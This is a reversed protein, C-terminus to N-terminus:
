GFWLDLIEDRRERAQLAELETRLSALAGNGSAMAAVADSKEIRGARVLWRVWPDLTELGADLRGLDGELKELLPFVLEFRRAVLCHRLVREIRRPPFVEDQYLEFVNKRGKTRNCTMCAPVLNAPVDPGGLQVPVVHDLHFDPVPVRCYACRGFFEQLLRKLDSRTLDHEVGHGKARHRHAALRTSLLCRFSRRYRVNRERATETGEYRERAALRWTRSEPNKLRNAKARIQWCSRCRPKFGGRAKADRYFQGILRRKGCDVCRRRKPTVNEGAPVINLRRHSYPHRGSAPRRSRGRREARHARRADDQERRIELEEDTPPCEPAPEHLRRCSECRPPDPDVEAPLPPKEWLVPDFRFPDASRRVLEVMIEGIRRLGLGRTVAVVM